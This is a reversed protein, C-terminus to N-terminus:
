IPDSGNEDNTMNKTPLKLFNWSSGDGREGLFLGRVASNTKVLYVYHFYKFAWLLQSRAQRLYTFLVPLLSNASIFRWNWELLESQRRKRCTKGENLEIRFRDELIKKTERCDVEVHISTAPTDITIDTVRNANWSLSQFAASQIYRKTLNFRWHMQM